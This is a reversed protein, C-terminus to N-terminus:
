WQRQQREKLKQRLTNPDIGLQNSLQILNQEMQADMYEKGRRQAAFGAPALRSVGAGAVGRRQSAEALFEQVDRSYFPRLLLNPILMAASTKTLGGAIDAGALVEGALESAAVSGEVAAQTPTMRNGLVREASTAFDQLPAKREALIQDAADPGLRRRTRRAISRKLQAPTYSGEKSTVAGHTSADVVTKLLIYGKDLRDLEAAIAPDARRIMNWYGEQLRNIYDVMHPEDARSARAKEKRLLSQIWKLDSGSIKGFTAFSQSPQVKARIDALIQTLVKYESSNLQRWKGPVGAKADRQVDRMVVMFSPQGTPGSTNIRADAGALVNDYHRGYEERTEAISDHMSMEGPEKWPLGVVERAMNLPAFAAEHVARSQAMIPYAGLLPRRAMWEEFKGFQQRIAGRSRSQGIKGITPVVKSKLLREVDPDPPPPELKRQLREPVRGKTAKAILERPSFARAGKGFMEGGAIQPLAELMTERGTGLLAALTTNYPAVAEETQAGGPESVHEHYWDFPAGFLSMAAAGGETWPETHHLEQVGRVWNEAPQPHGGLAEAAINYGGKALGALGSLPVAPSTAISALPEVAGGLLNEVSYPSQELPINPNVAVNEKTGPSAEAQKQQYYRVWKWDHFLRAKREMEAYEERTYERKPAPASGPAPPSDPPPQVQPQPQAPDM